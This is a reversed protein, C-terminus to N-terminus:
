SSLRRARIEAFDLIDCPTTGETCLTQMARHYGAHYGHVMAAELKFVWQRIFLLGSVLAAVVVLMVGAAKASQGAAGCALLAGVVWLVGSGTIFMLTTTDWRQGRAM